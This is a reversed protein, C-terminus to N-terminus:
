YNKRKMVPLCGAHEEKLFVADAVENFYLICKIKLIRTKAILRLTRM